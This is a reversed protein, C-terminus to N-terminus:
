LRCEKGVRREESRRELLALGRRRQVERLDVLLVAEEEGRARGVRREGPLAELAFPDEHVVAPLRERHELVRTVLAAEVVRREARDVYRTRLHVAREPATFPVVDVLLTRRRLLELVVLDAM